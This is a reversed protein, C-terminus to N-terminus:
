RTARARAPPGDRWRHFRLEGGDPLRIARVPALGEFEGARVKRALARAIAETWEPGTGGGEKVLVLGSERMQREADALDRLRVPSALVVGVQLRDAALQLNLANLPAQDFLVFVSREGSGRLLEDTSLAIEEHPWAVKSPPALDPGLASGWIGWPGLTLTGLPNWGFSASALLGAAALLDVGVWCAAFRPAARRLMGALIGGALALPALAPLAFRVARNASALLVPLPVLLWLWLMRSGAVPARREEPPPLDLRARGRSLLAVAAGIALLALHVNSVGYSCLQALYEVLPAHYGKSLAGFSSEWSHAFLNRANVTYWAGAVWFAVVLLAIWRKGERPLFPARAALLGAGASLLLAAAAFARLRGVQAAALFSGGVAATGLLVLARFAGARPRLRVSQVHLLTAFSALLFLPFTVKTLLGTGLVLGLRPVFGRRSLWDSELLYFHWALVLALLPIETMFRRSLGEVSPFTCLLLVAVSAGFPGTFRRALRFTYLAAALLAALVTASFASASGRGFLFQFPVAALSLFPAQGKLALVFREFFGAIGREALADFMRLSERAYQADDWLMPGRHLSLWAVHSLLLALPLSVEWTARPM